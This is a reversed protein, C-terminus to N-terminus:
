KNGGGCLSAGAHPQLTHIHTHLTAGMMDTRAIPHM